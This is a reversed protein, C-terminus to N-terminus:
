IDMRKCEACLWDEPDNIDILYWLSWKVTKNKKQCGLNGKIKNFNRDGKLSVQASLELSNKQDDTQGDTFKECKWRRWFWQALKLWVQWLADKPPPSELKNLHLAVGKEFPLYNLFLLFVNVFKFTKKWFWIILKLWLQCLADKPLPSDIKNLHLHGGKELTYLLSIALINM